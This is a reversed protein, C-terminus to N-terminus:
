EDIPEPVPQSILRRVQESDIQAKLNWGVCTVNPIASRVKESFEQLATDIDPGSYSMAVLAVSHHLRISFLSASIDYTARGKAEDQEASASSSQAGRNGRMGRGGGGM